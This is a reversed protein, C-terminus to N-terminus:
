ANRGNNEFRLIIITTGNKISNGINNPCVNMVSCIGECMGMLFEQVYKSKNGNFSLVLEENENKRVLFENLDFINHLNTMAEELQPQKQCFRFLKDQFFPNDTVIHDGIEWSLSEGDHCITKESNSLLVELFDLPYWCEDRIESPFRMKEMINRFGNTSQKMSFEAVYDFVTTLLRGKVREFKGGFSNVLKKMEADLIEWEDEFLICSINAMLDIVLRGGNEANINESTKGVMKCHLEAIKRANHGLVSGELVHILKEFFETTM